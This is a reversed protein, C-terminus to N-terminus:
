RYRPLPPLLLLSESAIPGPSHLFNSIPKRSYRKEAISHISAVTPGLL